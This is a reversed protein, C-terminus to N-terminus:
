NAPDALLDAMLWEERKVVMSHIRAEVAEPSYDDGLLGHWDYCTRLVKEYEALDEEVYEKENDTM